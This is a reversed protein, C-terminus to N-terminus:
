GAFFKNIETEWEDEFIMKFSHKEKGSILKLEGKSDNNSTLHNNLCEFVQQKYSTDDNGELHQGKTEVFCLQSDGNKDEEFKILFDPYIKDRRWGQVSYESGRVALRHWWLVAEQKNIALAVNKELGNYNSMYQPQFINRELNVPTENIKRNCSVEDAMRWNLKLFPEALLKLMIKGSDLKEKFISESKSILWKFCDRKIEEVIYVANLAIKEPKHQTNLVDLVENIIRIAQWPNPIKDMLQSTMLTIDLAATVQESQKHGSDFNISFQGTSEEKLDVKVQRFDRVDKDALILSEPKKFSYEAWDVEALIDKYYDFAQAKGNIISNLQPLFIKTDKFKSNRSLKVSEVDSVTVGAANIQDAVDEMGEDQLGKRIGDVAENVEANNCYVYCQNLEERMTASAYPQRLVRGIFQTLATKGKTNPLIALVYAFSCDWGEKLADKTIIYKVPCLKDLLDEDGIEDKESLESM